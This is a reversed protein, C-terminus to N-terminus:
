WAFSCDIAAKLEHATEQDDAQTGLVTLQLKGPEYNKNLTATLTFDVSKLQSLEQGLPHRHHGQLGKHSIRDFLLQKMDEPLDGSQLTLVFTDAEEKIQLADLLSLAFALRAFKGKPGGPHFDPHGHHHHHGAHHFGFGRHRREPGGFMGWCGRQGPQAAHGAFDVSATVKAKAQGTALNKEFENQISFITAEDKAIEAQLVGTIVEKAKLTKVMDYLFKLKNM